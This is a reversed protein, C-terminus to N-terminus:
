TSHQKQCYFRKRFANCKESSSSSYLIKNDPFIDLLLTALLESYNQLAM